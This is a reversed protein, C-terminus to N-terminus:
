WISSKSTVPNAPARPHAMRELGLPRASEPPPGARRWANPACSARRRLPGPRSRDELKLTCPNSERTSHAFLLAERERRNACALHSTEQLAVAVFNDRAVM